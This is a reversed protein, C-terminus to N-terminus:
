NKLRRDRFVWACNRRRCFTWGVALGVCGRREAADEPKRAPLVTQGVFAAAVVDGLRARGSAVGPGGTEAQEWLSSFSAESSRAGCSALCVRSVIQPRGIETCFTRWFTESKTWTRCANPSACAAGPSNTNDARSQAPEDAGPDNSPQARPLRTSSTGTTCLTTQPRSPAPRANTNPNPPPNSKRNIM